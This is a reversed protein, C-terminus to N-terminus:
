SEVPILSDIFDSYLDRMPLETNTNIRTRKAKVLENTRTVVKTRKTLTFAEILIYLM